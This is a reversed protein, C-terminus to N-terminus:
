NANSPVRRRLEDFFNLLFIVRDHPEEATETQTLAVVHKGDPTPDYSRTTNFGALTKEFWARPKDAIFSDGHVKYSVAMLRSRSWFFLENRSWAPYAGGDDSIQRKGHKDPFEQVYVQSRGSENSMYALWKGDPSFAPSRADFSAQLFVEPKGARLGSGSGDVPVTWIAAGNASDPEVFALRTGDSTFSWPVQRTNGSQILRQAEGTGDARTWMMGETSRFV